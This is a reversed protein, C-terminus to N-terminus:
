KRMVNKKHYITIHFKSPLTWAIQPKQNYMVDTLENNNSYCIEMLRM